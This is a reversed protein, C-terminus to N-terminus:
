IRQYEEDADLIEEIWQDCLQFFVSAAEASDLLDLDRLAQAAAFGADSRETSHAARDMFQDFRKQAEGRTEAEAVATLLKMAASVLKHRPRPAPAGSSSSFQGTM